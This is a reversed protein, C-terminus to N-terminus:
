AYGERVRKWGKKIWPGLHWLWSWSTTLRWGISSRTGEGSCWRVAALNRNITNPSKGQAQLQSAYEEVMLKIMPRGARWKEFALLDQRYGRITHESKLRPYRELEREFDAFRRIEKPVPLMSLIREFQKPYGVIDGLFRSLQLRIETYLSDQLLHSVSKPPIIFWSNSQCHEKAHKDFWSRIIGIFYKDRVWVAAYSELEPFAIVVERDSLGQM